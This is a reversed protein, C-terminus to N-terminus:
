PVCLVPQRAGRLVKEATGGFLVDAIEPGTGYKGMVILNCDLDTAIKYIETFPVGQAIMTDFQGAGRQTVLDAMKEEAQARMKEVTDAYTGIGFREVRRAVDTDVVHLVIVEGDAPKWRLATDLARMSCTSFDVAVLMADPTSREEDEPAM